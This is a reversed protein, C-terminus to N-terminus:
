QTGSFFFTATDYQVPSRLQSVENDSSMHVEKIRVWQGGSVESFTEELRQQASHGNWLLVQPPQQALGKEEHHNTHFWRTCVCHWNHMVASGDFM